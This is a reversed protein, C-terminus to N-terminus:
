AHRFFKGEDQMNPLRIEFNDLDKKRNSPILYLNWKTKDKKLKVM